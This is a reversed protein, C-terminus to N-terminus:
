NLYWLISSLAQYSSFDNKKMLFNQWWDSTKRERLQYKEACMEFVSAIGSDQCLHLICHGQDRHKIHCFRPQQVLRFKLCSRDMIIALKQGWWWLLSLISSWVWLDPPAPLLQCLAAAEPCMAARCLLVRVAASVSASGKQLAARAARLNNM